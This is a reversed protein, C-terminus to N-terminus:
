LSHQDDLLRLLTLFLLPFPANHTSRQDASFLSPFLLYFSDIRQPRLVFSYLSPPTFSLSPFSLLSLRHTTLSANVLLFSLFSLFTVLSLPTAATSLVALSFYASARVLCFGSRLFAFFFCSVNKSSVTGAELMGFGAQLFFVASGFSILMFADVSERIGTCDPMIATHPSRLFQPQQIVSPFSSRVPSHSRATTARRHLLGHSLSRKAISAENYDAVAGAVPILTFHNPHTTKSSLAPLTQATPTPLPFSLM